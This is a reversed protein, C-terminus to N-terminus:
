PSDSKSKQGKMYQIFEDTNIYYSWRKMKVATGFPFKDQQLGMQVFRPTVQMIKAAVAVTIKAPRQVELEQLTVNECINYKKLRNKSSVESKELQSNLYNNKLEKEEMLELLILTLRDRIIPIAEPNIAEVKLESM